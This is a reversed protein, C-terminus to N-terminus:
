AAMPTDSLARPLAAGLPISRALSVLSPRSTSKFTRGPSSAPFHGLETHFSRSVITAAADSDPWKKAYAENVIFSLEDDRAVDLTNIGRLSVDGDGILEGDLRDALEATRIQITGDSM